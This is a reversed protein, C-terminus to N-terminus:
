CTYVLSQAHLWSIWASWGSVAEVTPAWIVVGDAAWKRSLPLPRWPNKWTFVALFVSMGGLLSLLRCLHPRHEFLYLNGWPLLCPEVISVYGLYPIRFFSLSPHLRWPFGFIGDEPDSQTAGGFVSWLYSVRILTPPTPVSFTSPLYNRIRIRALFGGSRFGRLGEGHCFASTPHVLTPHRFVNTCFYSSLWGVESSGRDSCRDREVVNRDDNRGGEFHVFVVNQRINFCLLSVDGGSLEEM